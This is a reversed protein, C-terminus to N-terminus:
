RNEKAHIETLYRDHKEALNRPGRGGLAVLRLAPDKDVPVSELYKAVSERVLAAITSGEQRALAKLARHQREDLYIQIPKKSMYQMDNDYSLM